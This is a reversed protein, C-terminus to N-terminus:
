KIETYYVNEYHGNRGCGVSYDYLMFSVRHIQSEEKNCSSRRIVSKRNARYVFSWPLRGQQNIWGKNALWRFRETLVRRDSTNWKRILINNDYNQFLFKCDAQLLGHKTSSNNGCKVQPPCITFLVPLRRTWYRQVAKIHGTQRAFTILIVYESNTNVAKTKWCAIRM